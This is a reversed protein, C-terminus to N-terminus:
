NSQSLISRVRPRDLRGRPKASPHARFMGTNKVPELELWRLPALTTSLAQLIPPVTQDCARPPRRIGPLVRIRRGSRVLRGPSAAAPGTRGQTARRSHYRRRRWFAQITGITSRHPRGSFGDPAIPSEGRDQPSVEETEIGAPSVDVFADPAIGNDGTTEAFADPAIGNDGAADAVTGPEYESDADIGLNTAPIEGAVWQRELRRLDRAERM